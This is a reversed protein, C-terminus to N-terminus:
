PPYFCCPLYLSISCLRFLDTLVYLPCDFENQVPIGFSDIPEYLQILCYSSPLVSTEGPVNFCAALVGLDVQMPNYRYIYNIGQVCDHVTSDGIFSLREIFSVKRHGLLLNEMTSIYKSGGLSSLRGLFSLIAPGLMDM